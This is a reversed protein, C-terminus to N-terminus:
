TETESELVSALFEQPTVVAIGRFPNCCLFIPTAASLTVRGAASLWNWSSTTRLTVAIRSSRPSKSWSPRACYPRSSNSGSRKLLNSTSNRAAFFKTLEAITAESVLLKGRDAAMDFSQRPVSHTLLVASVVVATDVVTRVESTM